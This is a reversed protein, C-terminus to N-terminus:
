PPTSAVESRRLGLLVLMLLGCCFVLCAAMGWCLAEAFRPGKADTAGSLAAGVVVAAFALGIGGGLQMSTNLLGAALGSREARVGATGAVTLGANSIMFGAEGIVRERIV